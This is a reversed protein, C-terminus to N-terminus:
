MKRKMRAVMQKAKEPDILKNDRLYKEYKYHYSFILPENLGNFPVTLHALLQRVKKKSEDVEDENDQSDDDYDQEM